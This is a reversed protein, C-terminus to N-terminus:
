GWVAAFLRLFNGGLLRAADGDSWGRRVLEETLRGFRTTSDLGEVMRTEYNFWDLHGTIEPYRGGRAFAADWAARDQGEGMDSGFGVHDVGCVAVLHEVHRFFDDVTPRRGRGNHNMPSWWTAGIVGGREALARLTRDSKNRPCDCVALANAHTVAVPATSLQIAEYTTRDGCHSLDILLGLQNMARVVERGYRSLGGDPNEVCGDGLANRTNYTLQITRVGLRHFLDLDDLGREVPAHQFAFALGIKGEARARAVDAARRVHLVQDALADILRLARGAARVSAAFDADPHAITTSVAHIGGARIRELHEPTVPASQSADIVLSARHLARARDTADTQIPAM